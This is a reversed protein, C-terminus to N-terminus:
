FFRVRGPCAQVPHTKDAPVSRKMVKIPLESSASADSSSGDTTPHHEAPASTATLAPAASAALVAPAVPVVEASEASEASLYGSIHPDHLATLKHHRLGHKPSLGGLHTHVHPPLAPRATATSNVDVLPM